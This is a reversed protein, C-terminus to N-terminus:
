RGLFNPIIHIAYNMSFSLGVDVYGTHCATIDFIIYVLPLINPHINKNELGCYFKRIPFEIITASYPQTNDAKHCKTNNKLAIIRRALDIYENQKINLQIRIVCVKNRYKSNLSFRLVYKFNIRTCRM